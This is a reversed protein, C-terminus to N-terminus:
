EKTFLKLIKKILFSIPVDININIRNRKVKGFNADAWSVAPWEATM